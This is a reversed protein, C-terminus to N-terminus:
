KTKGPPLPAGIHTILPEPNGYTPPKLPEPTPPPPVPCGLPLAPDFRICKKTEQHQNMWNALKTM